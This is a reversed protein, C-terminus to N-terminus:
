PLSLTSFFKITDEFAQKSLLESYNKNQPDAFGHLGEYKRVEVNGNERLNCILEEVNFSMEESPFLLLSPCQPQKDLYDRIRSGYYAVFADVLGKETGCLWAITAGVSYGIVYLMQYKHRLQMLISRTNEVIPSFGINVFNKYAMEEEEYNYPEDRDLLNPCIVDYGINSLRGCVERIHQNIGYIEHLVVIATKSNNHYTLM